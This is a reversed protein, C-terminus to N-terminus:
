QLFRECNIEARKRAGKLQLLPIFRKDNETVNKESLRTYKRVMPDALVCNEFYTLKTQMDKKIIPELDVVVQGYKSRLTNMRVSFEGYPLYDYEKKNICWIFPINILSKVDIQYKCLWRRHRARTYIKKEGNDNIVHESGYLLTYSRPIAVAINIWVILLLFFLAGILTGVKKILGYKRYLVQYKKNKRYVDIVFLYFPITALASFWTLSALWKPSPSYDHM